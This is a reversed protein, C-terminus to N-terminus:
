EHGRGPPRSTEGPQGAAAGLRKSLKWLHRMAVGFGLIALLVTWLPTTGFREDLWFGALPPVAMEMGITTIASAWQM